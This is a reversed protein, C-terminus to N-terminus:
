VLLELTRREPFIAGSMAGGAAANIV